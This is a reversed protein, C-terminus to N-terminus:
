FKYNLGFRGMDFENTVTHTYTVLAPDGLFPSTTGSTGTRNPLGVHLYEGKVTWHDTIAFEIGGGAVWGIKGASVSSFDTGSATFIPSYINTETLNSHVAAAGGTGYVLWRDFFTWGLRGRATFMWDSSVTTTSTVPGAIPATFVTSATNSFGLYDLDFEAGLVWHGVQVNYGVEAGATVRSKSFSNSSLADIVTQDAPFYGDPLGPAIYTNTLREKVGGVLGGAYFGTWSFVAPAVYAPAKLQMDAAMAPLSVASALAGLLIKRM